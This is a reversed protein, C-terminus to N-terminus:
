LASATDHGPSLSPLPQHSSQTTICKLTNHCFRATPSSVQTVICDRITDHCLLIPACTPHPSPQTMICDTYRSLRFSAQSLNQTVIFLLTDHGSFTPWSPLTKHYLVRALQSVASARAASPCSVALRAAVRGPAVAM